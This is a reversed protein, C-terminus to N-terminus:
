AAATSIDADSAEKRESAAASSRSIAKTDGPPRFRPDGTIEVLIGRLATLAEDLPLDNHFGVYDTPTRRTLQEFMDRDYAAHGAPTMEQKRTVLIENSVHCHITPIRQGFLRSLWRSRCFSPQDTKRNVYLFDSLSRDILMLRRQSTLAKLRQGLCARLYLAPALIEDFRERSRTLLPRLFIVAMKYTLSKRYLHKGTFVRLDEPQQEALREALTTKGAGDCGMISIQTTRRSAALSKQWLRNLLSPESNRRPQLTLEDALRLLTFREFEKTIQRLRRAAARCRNTYSTLRQQASDSTLNKHKCVLHQTYVCAELAIPLRSVPEDRDLVRSACNEFTLVQQGRDFQPLRIWLDFCAHQRGDISFLTLEVKDAKGSAVRFHCLGRRMWDRAAALLQDVSARSGLLDVDDNNFMSADFDHGRLQIFRWPGRRLEALCESLGLDPAAPVTAQAIDPPPVSPSM